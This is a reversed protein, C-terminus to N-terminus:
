LERLRGPLSGNWTTDPDFDMIDAACPEVARLRDREILVGVVETRGSLDSVTGKIYCHQATWYSSDGSNHSATIHSGLILARLDPCRGPAHLYNFFHNALAQLKTDTIIGDGRFDNRTEYPDGMPDADFSPHIHVARLDPLRSLKDLIRLYREWNEDEKSYALDAIRLDDDVRFSIAQISQFRACMGLMDMLEDEDEDIITGNLNQLLRLSTLPQSIPYEHLSSWVRPWSECIEWSLHLSSLKESRILSRLGRKVTDPQAHHTIEPNLIALHELLLEENQPIAALLNEVNQCHVLTLGKLKRFNMLRDLPCYAEHLDCGRLSLEELHVPQLTRSRLSKALKIFVDPDSKGLSLRRLNRLEHMFGLVPTGTALHQPRPPSFHIDLTRLDPLGVAGSGLATADLREHYDLTCQMERVKQQSELVDEMFTEDCWSSLIRISNLSHEPFLRVILSMTQARREKPTERWPLELKKKSSSTALTCWVGEFPPEDHLVLTRTHRLHNAAGASICRVFTDVSEKHWVHIRVVKYLHPIALSRLRKSTSCLSKLDSTEYVNDLVILWADDSLDVHNSRSTTATTAKQSAIKKRTRRSLSTKVM